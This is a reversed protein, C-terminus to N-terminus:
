RKKWEVVQLIPFVPYIILIHAISYLLIKIVTLLFRIHVSNDFSASFLVGNLGTINDFDFFEVEFDTGFDSKVFDEGDAFFAAFEIDAGGHDGTGGDFGGNQILEAGFLDDNEFHFAAFAIATGLTM